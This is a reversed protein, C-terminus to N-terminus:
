KRKSNNRRTHRRKKNKRSRTIRKSKRRINKGGKSGRELSDYGPLAVGNNTWTFADSDPCKQSQLNIEGPNRVTQLNSINRNDRNNNKNGQASSSNGKSFINEIPPRYPQPKTSVEGPGLVGGPFVGPPLGNIYPSQNKLSGTNATTKDTGRPVEKGRLWNGASM